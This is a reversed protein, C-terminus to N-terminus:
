APDPEHAGTQAGTPKAPNLYAFGPRRSVEPPVGAMSEFARAAVNRDVRMLELQWDVIETGPAWVDLMSRLERANVYIRSLARWFEDTDPDDPDNPITRAIAARYEEWTSTSLMDERRNLPVKPDDILDTLDRMLRELEDTILRGIATWELEAARDAAETAKKQQWWALAAQGGFSLVGGVVVGILAYVGANLGSGHATRDGAAVGILAYLGASL